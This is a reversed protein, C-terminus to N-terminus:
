LELLTNQIPLIELVNIAYLTQNVNNMTGITTKFEGMFLIYQYKNQSLLVHIGLALSSDLSM